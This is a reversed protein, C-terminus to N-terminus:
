DRNDQPDGGNKEGGFVKHLESLHTRSLYELAMRDVPELLGGIVCQEGQCVPHNFLCRSHDIPGEITEYVQLLSIEAAPRKLTFGGGPGRTSQVLGSKALRQLVKSLHPESVKLRAAMEKVSLKGKGGHALLSMAHLAISAAESIKIFSPM